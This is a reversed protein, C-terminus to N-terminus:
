IYKWAPICAISLTSLYYIFRKSLSLPPKYAISKIAGELNAKIELHSILGVRNLMKPLCTELAVFLSIAVVRWKADLFHTNLFYILPIPVCLSIYGIIRASSRDIFRFIM